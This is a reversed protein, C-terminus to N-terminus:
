RSALRPQALLSKKPLHCTMMLTWLLLALFLPEFPRCSLIVTHPLIILSYPIIISCSLFISPHGRVRGNGKGKGKGTAKTKKGLSSLPVDDDDDTAVKIRASTPRPPIKKALPVDDDSDM